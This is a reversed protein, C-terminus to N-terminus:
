FNDSLASFIIDANIKSVLLNSFNNSLFTIFNQEKKLVHLEKKFVEASEQILKDDHKKLFQQHCCFCLSKSQLKFLHLILYKKEKKVIIQNQELKEHAHLLHSIEACFSSQSSFFCSRKVHVCKSYKESSNVLICSLLLHACHDCSCSMQVNEAFIFETLFLHDLHCKFM